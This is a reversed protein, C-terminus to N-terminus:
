RRYKKKLNRARDKCNVQSRSELLPGGESTPVSGDKKKIMAYSTGYLEMLYLLREDEESTWRSNPKRPKRDPNVQSSLNEWYSSSPTTPAQSASPPPNTTEGDTLDESDDRIQADRTARTSTQPGRSARSSDGQKSQVEHPSKEGELSAQFRPRKEPRHTAGRTDQEFDDDSEDGSDDDSEDFSRQRKKSSPEVPDARRRETSQTDTIPSVKSAHDQKQNFFRPAVTPEHGISNQQISRHPTQYVLSDHRDPNHSVRNIRASASPSTSTMMDREHGYSLDSEEDNNVYTFDDDDAALDRQEPSGPIERPESARTVVAAGSTIEQHVIGTTPPKDSPRSTAGSLSNQRSNEEMRKKLRAFSSADRYNSDILTLNLCRFVLFSFM